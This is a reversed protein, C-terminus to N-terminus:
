RRLLDVRGVQAKPKMQGAGERAFWSAMLRDGPHSRPDYYLMEQVWSRLEPHLGADTGDSTPIIWKANAMEVAMSEIGFEASRFTKGTTTYPRVPVASIKKTFDVIFQQAANNEVIVISKFANHTDVIKNVIEDGSWRGCQISLVQRTEDPHVAITFLVTLDSGDKTRVGLDVGTFTRFGVPVDHLGEMLTKGKGKEMCSEIWAKKFRSDEDSRATCLLQRSFELPGLVERKEEIRSVPWREPWTPQGQPTIVPFRKATWAKMKAFRHMIDDRHWATGVCWIRSQRTLRGELTSQFWNFLDDRQAQGLTNEYDLLDDLILLDVRAGLINGHIGCTQFSPDRARTNREVYIKHMTWPMGKDRRLTPFVRQLEPSTTIYKGATLCVKQAQSDTNSVIVVRLDHNKGLEFLSRGLSIQSTKGAEVHAWILTRKHKDLLEHWRQHIPSQLIPGGTEEDKLVYTNFANPDKRAMACHSADLQAVLKKLDNPAFNSIDTDGHAMTWVYCLGLQERM